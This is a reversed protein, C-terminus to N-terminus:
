NVEIEYWITRWVPSVTFKLTGNLFSGGLQGRRNGREDLAWVRATQGNTFLKVVSTIGAVYTPGSGWNDGVSTREANWRMGVNEARGAVTLLLRKSGAIPSSDLATLGMTAWTSSPSVWFQAAGLDVRRGGAFGAVVLSRPTKVSWLGNQGDWSVQGTDSQFTTASNALARSPTAFLGPKATTAARGNLAVGRPAGAANWTKLFPAIAVVGPTTAVESWAVEDPLNLTIDNQAPAVDGLDDGNPRRFILAALPATGMKVPQTDISFFGEFKDRDFAGSSHYDFIWAGAWNQLSAFTALMPLSEAGFDNPQGSNFESVVFPKGPVRLMATAALPDGLPSAAMSQNEVRWNAGNWGAGGFDPHKWYIHTDVVDSLMERRQGGWGGFQAQTHWVPVRVGLDIILAKRMASVNHAELEGLFLAFDRRVAFIPESKADPLPVGNRLNWTIPAAVRGGARLSFGGFQVNGAVNSVNFSLRAHGPEAGSARVTFTYQQWDSTMRVNGTFGLWKYPAFDQWLNVSLTRPDDSRGWFSLTYPKNDDLTLGDRVMQFAWTVNGQRTLNLSVGPQVFGGISPGGLDDRSIRGQAGGALNLKWRDLGATVEPSLTQTPQPLPADTPPAVTGDPLLGDPGGLIIPATRDIVPAPSPAAFSAPVPPNLLDPGSLSADIETWARTLSADSGYKRLLWDNWKLRLNEGYPNPLKALSGDLWLSLVSSENDVELACVGPEDKYARTTYPNVHLLLFRAFEINAKEFGTDVAGMGKDKDPLFASNAVGEGEVTKRAVHLNFDIYIGRKILESVFFDLRDLQEADVDRPLKLRTSGIAAAKWIGKPAANGDFHHMRVANFGFKALRGAIKPATAKDPFVGEFNLNVGWFRLKKGSGDVFHEGSVRVFGKAGAPKENLYSLDLVNVSDDLAPLAFPFMGQTGLSSATSLPPATQARVSVAFGLLAMLYFLPRM